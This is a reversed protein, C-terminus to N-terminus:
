PLSLASRSAEVCIAMEPSGLPTPCHRRPRLRPVLSRRRITAPECIGPWPWIDERYVVYAHLDPSGWSDGYYESAAYILGVSFAASRGHEAHWDLAALWAALDHDSPRGDRSDGGHSHWIGALPYDPGAQAEARHWQEVDLRLSGSTRHANGTVTADTIEVRKDWSRTPRGFLFGGCEARDPPDPPLLDALMTERATRSLTIEISPTAKPRFEPVEGPPRTDARVLSATGGGRILDGHVRRFTM